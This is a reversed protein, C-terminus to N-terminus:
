ARRRGGSGSAGRSAMHVPVAPGALASLWSRSLSVTAPDAGRRILEESLEPHKIMRDARTMLGVDGRLLVARVVAGEVDARTDAAFPSHSTPLFPGTYRDLAEDLRGERVLRLLDLVDFRVGEGLTYCARRKDYRVPVGAKRARMALTPLSSPAPEAEFLEVVVRDRHVCGNSLAILAALEVARRNVVSAGDVTCRGLTAVDVTTAM